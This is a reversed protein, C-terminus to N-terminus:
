VRQGKLQDHFQLDLGSFSLSKAPKKKYSMLHDGGSGESFVGQFNWEM